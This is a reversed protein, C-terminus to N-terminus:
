LWGLYVREASVGSPM